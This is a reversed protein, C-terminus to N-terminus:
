LYATADVSVFETEFMSLAESRDEDHSTAHILVLSDYACGLACCGFRPAAPTTSDPQL